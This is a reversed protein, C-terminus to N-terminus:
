QYQVYYTCDLGYIENPYNNEVLWEELLFVVSEDYLVSIGIHNGYGYANIQKHEAGIIIYENLICAVAQSHPKCTLSCIGLIQAIQKATYMQPINELEDEDFIYIGLPEYVGSLFELIRKPLVGIDRMARAIIRVAANYEGLRPAPMAAKAELAAREASELEHFKTVYAATFLIGKDGTLKHAILDCGLRSVLYCPMEKNQTNIYSSRVFFSSEGIKPLGRHTLIERYKGIDRLLHDHRKEIIQAVQRSDIYACGNEKIINLENM